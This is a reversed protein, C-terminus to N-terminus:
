NRRPQASVFWKARQAHLSAIHIVLANLRYATIIHEHTTSMKVKCVKRQLEHSSKCARLWQLCQVQPAITNSINTGLVDSLEKLSIWADHWYVEAGVLLSEFQVRGISVATILILVGPPRASAVARMVYGLAVLSSLKKYRSTHKTQHAETTSWSPGCCFLRVSSAPIRNTSANAVRFLTQEGLKWLGRQQRQITSQTWNIMLNSALM